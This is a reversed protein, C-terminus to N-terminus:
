WESNYTQQHDKIVLDILKKTKIDQKELIELIIESNRIRDKLPKTSFVPRWRKLKYPGDTFYLLLGYKQENYVTAAAIEMEQVQSRLMQNYLKLKDLAITEIHDSEGKAWELEIELLTKLDKKEYAVTLMKMWQEKQNRKEPNQELDPHIIKALSKYISSLSKGKLEEIEAEKTEKEIQKKSKNKHQKTNRNQSNGTGYNRIKDEVFNNIEESSMEMKLESLDIVFGREILELELQGRLMEFEMEAEFLKDKKTKKEEEAKYIEKQIELIRIVQDDNMGNPCFLIFDIKENIYDTFSRRRSASLKTNKFYTFLEEIIQLDLKIFDLHVPYVKSICEELLTDLFQREIQIKAEAKNMRDLLLNFELQEKTLLEAEKPQINLKNPTTKM